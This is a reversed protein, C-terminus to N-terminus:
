WGATEHFGLQFIRNNWLSCSPDSKRGMFKCAEPRLGHQRRPLNEDIISGHRPLILPEENHYPKLPAIHVLILAAHNM